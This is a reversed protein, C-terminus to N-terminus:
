KRKIEMIAKVEPEIVKWISDAVIENGNEWVHCYDMYVDKEDFIHSLDYIYPHSKVIEKGQKRFSQMDKVMKQNLFMNCLKQLAMGHKTTIM